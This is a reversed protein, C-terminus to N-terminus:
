FLFHRILSIFIYNKKKLEDFIFPFNSVLEKFNSDIFTFLKFIKEQLNYIIFLNVTKDSLICFNEKNIHNNFDYQKSVYIKEENITLYKINNYEIVIIRNNEIFFDLSYMLNLSFLKEFNMGLVLFLDLFLCYLKNTSLECKIFDNNCSYLIKGDFNSFVSYVQFYYSVKM